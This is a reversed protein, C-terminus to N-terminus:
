TRGRRIDAIVEEFPRGRDPEAEFAALRQELEAEHWAPVPVAAPARAVSDWIEDLLALREEVGLMDIGLRKMKEGM